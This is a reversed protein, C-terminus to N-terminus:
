FLMYGNLITIFNGMVYSFVAVGGLLMFACVGREIDSRPVYDGFGVTALSTFAFYVHVITIYSRSQFNLGYYPIFGQGEVGTEEVDAYNLEGFDEVLKCMIYWFMGLLYSLNLIFIVIKTIKLTYYISIQQLIRNHDQEIDNAKKEDTKILKLQYDKYIAKIKKMLYSVDLLRFGKVLRLLKILYFLTGRRNRLPILQFPIVPILDRLFSGYFYHSVTNALQREISRGYQGSFEYSLLFSVLIDLAFIAEFFYMFIITASHQHAAHSAELQIRHAAMFVYIYSSVLCCATVFFNFMLYGGSNHNIVVYESINISGDPLVRLHLRDVRRRLWAHCKARCGAARTPGHMADAGNHQHREVGNEAEQHSLLDTSGHGEYEPSNKSGRVFSDGGGHFHYDYPTM